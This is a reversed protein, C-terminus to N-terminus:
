HLQSPGVASKRSDFHNPPLAPLITRQRQQKAPASVLVVHAKAGRIIDVAYVVSQYQVDPDGEVYVVKDCRLRLAEELTAPLDNESVEKSGLYYHGKEDVRIVLPGAGPFPQVVSLDKIIHVYLGHQPAPGTLMLFFAFPAYVLSCCFGYNPLTAFRKDLKLRRPKPPRRRESVSAGQIGPLLRSIQLDFARFLFGIGSLSLICIGAVLGQTLGDDSNRFTEVRLWTEGAQLCRSASIVELDLSYTGPSSKFWGLWLGDSHADAVVQGARSMVWHANLQFPSPENCAPDQRTASDIHVVYGANLNIEFTQKTVHGPTLKVPTILAVWTRGDMWRTFGFYLIVAALISAIGIRRATAPQM